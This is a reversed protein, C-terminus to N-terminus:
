GIEEELWDGDVLRAAGRRKALDMGIGAEPHNDLLCGLCVVRQDDERTEAPDGPMSADLLVFGDECKDYLVRVAPAHELLM